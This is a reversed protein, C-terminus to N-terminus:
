RHTVPLRTTPRRDDQQTRPIRQRGAIRRRVASPRRAELWARADRFVGALTGRMGLVIPEKGGAVVVEWRDSIAAIQLTESTFHLRRYGLRRAAEEQDILTGNRKLHGAMFGRIRGYIDADISGDSREGDVRRPLPLEYRGDKTQWPLDDPPPVLTSGFADIEHLLTEIEDASEVREGLWPARDVLEQHRKAVGAADRGQLDIKAPLGALSAVTVLSHQGEDVVDLITAVPKGSMAILRRRMHAGETISLEGAIGDLPRLARGAAQIYMAQSRMPRAQIVVDCTTEDWGEILLQACMLALVKGARFAKYAENREDDPTAGSLARAPIGAGRFAAAVNHAHEVDACFVVARRGPVHQEYASVIRANREDTDVAKELDGIVFDDGRTRVKSLDSKTRVVYSRIPVLWGEEVAWRIDRSYVIEDFVEELGVRDGRNPTATVGVVLADQNKALVGRVLERYSPAVAHHAEDLILLEIKKPFRTLFDALRAKGLSQVSAIVIKSFASARREAKEVDIWAEPAARRFHKEAQAILVDRNAVIVTAGTIGLAKPLAAFVVSKGTGTPLSVLQLRVGRARAEAIAAIAEGQYPRLELM